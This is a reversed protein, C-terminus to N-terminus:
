RVELYGSRGLRAYAGAANEATNSTQHSAGGMASWMQLEQHGADYRRVRWVCDPDNKDIDEENVAFWDTGDGGEHSGTDNGLAQQAFLWDRFNPGQCLMLRMDEIFGFPLPSHVSEPNTYGGQVSRYPVPNRFAPSVVLFGDDDEISFHKNLVWDIFSSLRNNINVAQPEQKEQGNKGLVCATLYFDPVLTTRSLLRAPEFPLNQGILYREFFVILAKLRTDVGKSESALWEVAYSHWTALAPQLQIVWRLKVDFTKAYVQSRQSVIPNRLAAPVTRSGDPQLESLKKNLVWETFDYLHSTWPRVLGDNRNTSMQTYFDPVVIASDFFARPESPLDNQVIFERFFCRLALLRPRVAGTQGAVWEMAYKRWSVFEPLEHIMWRFRKDNHPRLSVDEIKREATRQIRRIPNIYLPLVLLDGYEDAESFDVSLVWRLFDSICDNCEVIRKDVLGLHAISESFTPWVQGKALYAAPSKPMNLRLLYEKLFINVNKLVFVYNKPAAELWRTIYHRWEDLEPGISDLWRLSTEIREARTRKDQTM